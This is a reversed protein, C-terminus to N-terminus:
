PIYIPEVTVYIVGTSLDAIEAFGTKPLDIVRGEVFPGYDNITVECTKNNALNTVKVITGFPYTTSAAYPYDYWSAYGIQFDENVVEDIAKKKENKKKAFVGVIAYNLAIQGNVKKINKVKNAPLKNWSNTASNWFKIIKKGSTDKQYNVSLLINKNISISSKSRLDFSYLHSVLKQDQLDVSKKSIRKISLHIKNDSSLGNPLIGFSFQNDLSKLTVGKNLSGQDIGTRFNGDQMFALSPFFILLLLFFKFKYM